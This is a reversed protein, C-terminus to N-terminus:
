CSQSLGISPMSRALQEVRGFVGVIGPGGLGEVAGRGNRENPLHTGTAIRGPDHGVILDDILGLGSRGHRLVVRRPGVYYRVKQAKVIRARGAASMRRKKRGALKPKATGGFFNMTARIIDLHKLANKVNKEIKKEERRLIKLIDLKLDELLISVNSPGTLLSAM